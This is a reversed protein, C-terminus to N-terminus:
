RCSNFDHPDIREQPGYHKDFLKLENDRQSSLMMLDVPYYKSRFLYSIPELLPYFLGQLTAALIFFIFSFILAALELTFCIIAYVVIFVTLVPILAYSLAYAIVGYDRNDVFLAVYGEPYTPLPFRKM